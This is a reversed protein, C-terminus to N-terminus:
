NGPVLETEPLLIQCLEAQKAQVVMKGADFLDKQEKDNINIKTKISRVRRALDRGLAGDDFSLYIPPNTAFQSVLLDAIWQHRSHWSDLSIRTTRSLAQYWKPSGKTKSYPEPDSTYADILVLSIKSSPLQDAKEQDRIAMILSIASLLGLNDALGGDFLHLYPNLLDQGRIGFTTAPIPGPLSASAKVAVALPLEDEFGTKLEIPGKKRHTYSAVNYVSLIDPTIPFIAGNEYVTANAVWAPLRVQRDSDKPIWVDGLTLSRQNDRRDAGLIFRDLAHEFYDGRDLHTFLAKLSAFAQAIRNNYGRELHRCMTQAKKREEGARCDLASSLRFEEPSKGSEIHDSLAAIYAGAAFGGGSVTSFYDVEKLANTKGRCPLNELEQLVGIGFNGARHGGGSIAVIVHHDQDQHHSRGEPSKYPKLDIRPAQHDVRFHHFSRDYRTACGSALLSTVIALFAWRLFPFKGGELHSNRKRM